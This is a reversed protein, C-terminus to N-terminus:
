PCGCWALVDKKARVEKLATYLTECTLLGISMIYDYEM